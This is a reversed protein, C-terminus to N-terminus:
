GTVGRRWPSLKRGGLSFAERWGSAHWATAARLQLARECISIYHVMDYSYTLCSFKSIAVFNFLYLM